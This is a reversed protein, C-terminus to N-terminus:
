ALYSSKDLINKYEKSSIEGNNGILSKIMVNDEIIIREINEIKDNKYIYSEYLETKDFENIWELMDMVRNNFDIDYFNINIGSFRKEKINIKKRLNIVIASYPFKYKNLKDEDLDFNFIIDIDQLARRRNNSIELVIGENYYLEEELNHFKERHSTIIKIKKSKKTLEKIYYTILDNNESTIIAIRQNKLGVEQCKCIYELIQIILFKFLWRGNAIPLEVGNIREMFEENEKLRKGIVICNAKQKKRNIYRILLEQRIKTM